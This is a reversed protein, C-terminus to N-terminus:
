LIRSTSSSFQSHVDEASPIDTTMFSSTDSNWDTLYGPRSTVASVEIDGSLMAVVRPMSPRQQPSIQTCLLAVQIVRKVEEEDFELLRADVLEVERNTEHVHWAWKLLYIKEEELSSDTNPRGSVIELAVVGFGFVDAKETLQGLLAYEPALYGLTGAVRTSIHTKKDDFLKALGFDSVKPNLDSDLLINSAKVDRHVIRLRSEVHLYALGKAVGLCIDFRIPWNLFLSTKGFLAQDLSKNELYEYVILRKNGESCCGYLKVLNRHQVASTTAIEAVFQDKGQRSAVSLQKVAIVRGDNLTGKFVPGFGGEGLKNAPNFDETAVKLEAYSITYPRVDMGLLDEDDDWRPGKRCLVFWYLALFSLFSVVGVPVVIELIMGTKSKKGSTPNKGVTPIFDQVASIASISPGYTGEIPICCTGKGAWFLHIELYNKSIQARFDIQVAKFSVGGAEKKIDFDKRVLNGQIYIDFVRRGLSKWSPSNLFETEAFYLTVTYNGNELGLGFYRLSGPSIRATHFLRSDSNTIVQSSYVSTYQAAKTGNFQGVNSVAWRKTSAEYYTAPGLVDNDWEYVIQSSSSTIVPGGCNIAFDSYKRSSPIGGLCPFNEQICDLGTALVSNKAWSPLEVSLQNYSVDRCAVVYHPHKTSIKTKSLVSLNNLRVNSRQLRMQLLPSKQAPLMGTLKNNGLFLYSLGLHFLSDPIPGTLINFSLDLQSLSQFDGINSPITGSINNNRLILTELSTMDKLFALSSSGKSLDSIRLDMLSTLNSFTSPIGGEFANGQFRLERLESLNGIFEPISGTLENDSGWVTTLSQLAAFTSPIAGSVGSSYFYLDELKVLNGLESPLSGSFNNICISLVTLNTLKGLEKPVEGSLANYALYLWKMQTLNAISSSLPGTLYNKGLNLYTLSTLSWLEEPIGGTVDLAHVELQTIHCVTGNCDCGIAWTTNIANGSCPEGSINWQYDTSSLSLGWQNFVSNLASVESPPTTGNQAQVIQVLGLLSVFYFALAYLVSPTPSGGM